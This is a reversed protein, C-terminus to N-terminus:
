PTIKPFFKGIDTMIENLSPRYPGWTSGSEDVRLVEYAYSGSGYIGAGPIAGGVGIFTGQFSNNSNPFPETGSWGREVVVGLVDGGQAGFSCGDGRYQDNNPMNKFFTVGGVLVASEGILIGGDVSGFYSLTGSNLNLIADGTIGGFLGAGGSVSVRAGMADIDKLSGGLSFITNAEKFFGNIIELNLNGTSKESLLFTLLNERDAFVADKGFYKERWDKGLVQELEDETWHGTPDTYRLPNGRAYLYRNWDLPNYPDPIVTDPQQFM